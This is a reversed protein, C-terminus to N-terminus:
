LVAPQFSVSASGREQICWQAEGSPLSEEGGLERWQWRWSAPDWHRLGLLARDGPSSLDSPLYPSQLTGAPIFISYLCGTGRAIPSNFCHVGPFQFRGGPIESQSFSLGSSSEELSFIESLEM